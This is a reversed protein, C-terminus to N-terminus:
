SGLMGDIVSQFTSFPQAGSVIRSEGNENNLIITGPTGSVGAASGGAMQDDVRQAYKGSDVCNKLADGNLGIQEAYAVLKTNDSNEILLDAMDWFADNGGLEAACESAEAAKQANLHFSLPFHRYVWNVDDGYTDVVQQMTPHHRACFPCEFDSYEILTIKASPNGRIHDTQPDVPIVDQAAPAAPAPAAPVSPVNPQAAVQQQGSPLVVGGGMTMGVMYGVILGILGMSVSFWPGANGPTSTASPPM